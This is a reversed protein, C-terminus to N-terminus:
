RPRAAIWPDARLRLGDLSEFAITRLGIERASRLNPEMDDVFVCDEARLGIEGLVHRFYEPAPKRRGMEYSLFLRTFPAAAGPDLRLVQEWHTPNTNSCLYLPARASWARLFDVVEGRVEFIDSWARIFEAQECALGLRERCRAWFEETSLEGTEYPHNLGEWGTEGFIFRYIEPEGARCGALGAIQRCAREHSFTAIVNGLDILGAKPPADM